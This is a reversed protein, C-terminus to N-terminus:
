PELMKKGIKRLFASRRKLLAPEIETEVKGERIKRLRGLNLEATIMGERESCALIEEPGCIVSIVSNKANVCTIVYANNEIARAWWLTQWTKDEKGIDIGTPFCIIEAGELAAIRSLEPFWVEWCILMAIKGAETNFVSVKNGPTQGHEIEREILTTKVYEGVLGTPSFLLAKNWFKGQRGRGFAELFGTVIHVNNEKAMKSVRGVVEKRTIYTPEGKYWDNGFYEEPFVVLDLNGGKIYEKMVQFRDGKCSPSVAGVKIKM